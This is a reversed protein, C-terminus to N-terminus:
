ATESRVIRPTLGKAPTTEPRQAELQAIALTLVEVKERMNQIAQDLQSRKSM